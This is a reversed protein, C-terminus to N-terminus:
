SAGWRRRDVVDVPAIEEDARLGGPGWALVEAIVVVRGRRPLAYALPEHIPEVGRRRATALVHQAARDLWQEPTKGGIRREILRWMWPRFPPLLEDHVRYLERGDSV